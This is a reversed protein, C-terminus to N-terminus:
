ISLGAVRAAGAQTAVVTIKASIYRPADRAQFTQPGIIKGVSFSGSVLAIAVVRKTQGAVNSATWQFIIILTAAIANVLYIGALQATRNHTAFSLLAGGRDGPTCCLVLWAWRHSNFPDGYGVTLTSAISVLDSPTNLLSSDPSSFGFTKILTASYTIVVGSSISTKTVIICLPMSVREPNPQPYPVLITLLTMLCLQVDLVVELLQRSKFGRNRVGTQNVAVHRLLVVKKWEGLFRAQMPADPLWVGVVMGIVVTVVGLVVFM